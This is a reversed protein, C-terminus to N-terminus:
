RTPRLSFSKVCIILL